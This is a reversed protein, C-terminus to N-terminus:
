AYSLLLACAAVTAAVQLGVLWFRARGFPLYDEPWLAAVAGLVVAAVFALVIWTGSVSSCGEGQEVCGAARDSGGVVLLGAVALPVLLALCVGATRRLLRDQRSRAQQQQLTPM